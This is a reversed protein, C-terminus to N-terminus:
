TLEPAQPPAHSQPPPAALGRGPALDDIRPFLAYPPDFAVPRAPATTLIPTWTAAASAFACPSETTKRAPAKHSGPDPLVLMGHGTCIVLPIRYGALVQPQGVMVGPPVVIKLVLALAMLTMALRRWIGGVANMSRM